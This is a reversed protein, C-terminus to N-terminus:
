ADTAANTTFFLQVAILRADETMDDNADSVDRFFRFFVLDGEAPTGGITVAASIATVLMEGAGSQADDTVVVPTGWATDIAENDSLAIAQLGWAVGDTDTATTSWFVRFTITGENWSKPMAINFHVHEDATADFDFVKYNVDNTSSELSASAAGSTAATIMAGAPVVITHLGQGVTSAAAGITALATAADADDVLTAGFASITVSAASIDLTRDADGTTLTLTHDATLNSGPAIILDHSANTDLLHLGTNTLTFAGASDIFAREVGGTAFGLSDAAKKYLGTNTDSGFTLSPAAAAGDAAKLAGTLTEAADIGLSLGFATAVATFNANMQSSSITTLPTFTNPVSFTTM